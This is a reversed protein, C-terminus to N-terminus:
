LVVDGEDEKYKERSTEAAETLGEIGSKPRKSPPAKGTATSVQTRTGCNSLSVLIENPLPRSGNYHTIFSTHTLALQIISFIIIEREKGEERGGRGRERGRGREGGERGGEKEGGGRGGERERRVELLSRDKFKYNIDAELDVM